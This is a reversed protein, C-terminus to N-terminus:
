GGIEATTVTWESTGDSDVSYIVGLLTWEPPLIAWTGGARTDQTPVLIQPDQASSTALDKTGMSLWVFATDGADLTNGTGPQPPVMALAAISSSTLTGKYCNVATVLRPLRGATVLRIGTGKDEAGMTVRNFTWGSLGPLM